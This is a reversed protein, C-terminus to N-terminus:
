ESTYVLRASILKERKFALRWIGGRPLDKEHFNRLPKEQLQWIASLLPDRHSVVILTKYKNEKVIKFIFNKVRAGTELLTEGPYDKEGLVGLGGLNGLYGALAEDEFIKESKGEWKPSNVELLETTTEMPVNFGIKQQIFEATELTRQLPSTYIIEIGKDKLFRGVRKAAKRGRLSLPYGPLRGYLINKPNRVHAHRVCYVIM